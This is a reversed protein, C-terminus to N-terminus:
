RGDEKEKTKNKMINQLKISLEERKKESEDLKNLMAVMNNIKINKEDDQENIFRNIEESM